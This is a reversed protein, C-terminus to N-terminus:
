KKLRLVLHEIRNEALTSKTKQLADPNDFPGLQVRHWPEGPELEVKEIRVDLGLLILEARRHDAEKASRFSGTQIIYKQDKSFSDHAPKSTKAMKSPVVTERDPLVKYFDYDTNLLQKSRELGSSPSKIEQMQSETPRIGALYYLFALFLGTAVGTFLWVWGPISSSSKSM